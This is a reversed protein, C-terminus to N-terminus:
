FHRRNWVCALSSRERSRARMAFIRHM